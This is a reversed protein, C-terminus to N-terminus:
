PLEVGCEKAWARLQEPWPGAYDSVKGEDVTSKFVEFYNIRGAEHAAVILPDPADFVRGAYLETQFRFEKVAAAEERGVHVKGVHHVTIKTSLATGNGIAEASDGVFVFESQRDPLKRVARVVSQYLFPFTHSFDGIYHVFNFNAAKYRWPQNELARIEEYNAEDFIEDAQVQFVWGPASRRVGLNTLQSLGDHNAPWGCRVVSIQDHNSAFDEVAERTDDDHPGAEMIILRDVVPLVSLASYKWPYKILNVNHCTM